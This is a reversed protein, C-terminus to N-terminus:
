AVLGTAYCVTAAATAIAVSIHEEFLDIFIRVFDGFGNSFGQRRGYWLNEVWVRVIRTLGLGLRLLWWDVVDVFVVETVDNLLEGARRCM